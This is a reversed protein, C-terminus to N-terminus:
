NAKKEPKQAYWFYYFYYRHIKNDGLSEKVKAAWVTQEAQSMGFNSLAKGLSGLSQEAAEKALLGVLRLTKDKPWTGIPLKKKICTINTFGARRLFDGVGTVLDLNMGYKSMVAICLEYFKKMVDDESMTGDDCLPM